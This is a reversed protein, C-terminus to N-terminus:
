IQGLKKLVVYAACLDELGIGMSKFVTRDGIRYKLPDSVFNGMEIIRSDDRSIGSGIIEGSEMMAQDVHEVIITSSVDMVDKGVEMRNPLNGGALNLHYHDPLMSATFLPTKSSTITSVIDPDRLADEPRDVSIIDIGLEGAYRQAFKRSNEPHRSFVYAKEINFASAMGTLQTRAQFGSGFLAFNVIRKKVILSSVMAPLAGTRLQGLIEADVAAILEPPDIRFVLVVARFGNRSSVYSKLGSINYKPASAPMTNLIHGDAIIRNRPSSYAKGTGLDSIFDRLAPILDSVSLNQEVDKETLYLM